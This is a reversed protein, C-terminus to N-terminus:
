RFLIQVDLNWLEISWHEYCLLIFFNYEYLLCDISPTEKFHGYKQISGNQWFHRGFFVHGPWKVPLDAFNAVNTLTLFKSITVQSHFKSSLIPWGIFIAEIHLLFKPLISWLIYFIHLVLIQAGRAGLFPFVPRLLFKQFNTM